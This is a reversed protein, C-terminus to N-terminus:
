DYSSSSLNSARSKRECTVTITNGATNGRTKEMGNRQVAVIIVRCVEVGGEFGFRWGWGRLTVVKVPLALLSDASAHQDMALKVIELVGPVCPASTALRAFGLANLRITIGPMNSPPNCTAGATCHTNKGMDNESGKWQPMLRM